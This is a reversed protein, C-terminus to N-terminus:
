EVRWRMDEKSVYRGVYVAETPVEGGEGGGMVGGRVGSEM